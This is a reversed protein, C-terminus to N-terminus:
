NAVDELPRSNLATECALPRCKSAPFSMILLLGYGNGRSAKQTEKKLNEVAEFITEAFKKDSQKVAAVDCEMGTLREYEKDLRTRRFRPSNPTLDLM